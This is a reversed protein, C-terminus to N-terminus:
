IKEVLRMMRFPNSYLKFPKEFVRVRSRFIGTAAKSFEIAEPKQQYLRTLKGDFCEDSIMLSRCCLSRLPAIWVYPTRWKTKLTEYHKTLLNRFDDMTADRELLVYMKETKSSKPTMLFYSNGKVGITILDFDYASISDNQYGHRSFKFFLSSYSLKSSDDELNAAKLTKLIEKCNRSVFATKEKPEEGKKNYFDILEDYTALWSTLYIEQPLKIDLIKPDFINILRLTQFWVIATKFDRTSFSGSSWQLAGEKPLSYNEELGSSIISERIKFLIDPNFTSDKESRLIRDFVILRAKRDLGSSLAEGIESLRSRIVYRKERKNTGLPQKRELLGWRVMATVTKDAAEKMFSPDLARKRYDRYRRGKEIEKEGQIRIAYKKIITHVEDFSLESAREDSAYKAIAFIYDFVYTTGRLAKPM